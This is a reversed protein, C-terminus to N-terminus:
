RLCRRSPQSSPPFMAATMNEQRTPWSSRRLWEMGSLFAFAYIISQQCRALPQPVLPVCFVNHLMEQCRRVCVFQEAQRLPSKITALQVYILCAERTIQATRLCKFKIESQACEREQKAAPWCTVCWINIIMHCAVGLASWAVHLM